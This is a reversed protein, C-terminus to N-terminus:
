FMVPAVFVDPYTIHGLGFTLGMTVECCKVCVFLVGLPQFEFEEGAGPVMSSLVDYSQARSLTRPMQDQTQESFLFGQCDQSVSGWITLLPNIIVEKSLYKPEM